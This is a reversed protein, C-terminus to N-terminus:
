ISKGKFTMVTSERMLLTICFKLAHSSFFLISIKSIRVDDAEPTFISIDYIYAVFKEFYM